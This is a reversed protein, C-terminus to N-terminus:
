HSQLLIDVLNDEQRSLEGRLRGLCALDLRLPDLLASPIQEMLHAHLEILAAEEEGSILPLEHALIDAVHIIAAAIRTQSAELPRHHCAVPEWLSMPLNWRRLLEGGVQAHDIGIIARELADLPLGADDARAYAERAMEPLKAFMILQGVDHLLGAVFLTEPDSLRCHEALARSLLGCYVSHHWFDEMPGLPLRGFTEPVSTALVLNRLANMGIVTLAREISDIRSPFGYFPSNALRLLRATLGPDTAVIRALMAASCRPDDLIRNLKLLIQPPSILRLSGKILDDVSIVIQEEAWKQPIM